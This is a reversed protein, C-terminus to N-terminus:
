APRRRAARRTRRRPKHRAPKAADTKVPADPPASSASRGEGLASLDEDADSLRRTRSCLGTTLARGEEDGGYAYVVYSEGKTFAYGCAASSVPTTVVVEGGTVDKWAKTVKFRVRLNSGPSGASRLVMKPACGAAAASKKVSAGGPAVVEIVEGAFVARAGDAEQKPPGPPLCSCAYAARGGAVLLTLLSLGLLLTKRHRM